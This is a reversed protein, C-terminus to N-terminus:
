NSRKEEREGGILYYICMYIYIYSICKRNMYQCKTYSHDGTISVCAEFFGLEFKVTQSELTLEYYFLSTTAIAAALLGASCLLFLTYFIIKPQM